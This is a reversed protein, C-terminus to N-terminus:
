ECPNGIAGPSYRKRRWECYTATKRAARWRRLGLAGLALAGFAALGASAPEPTDSSSYGYALIEVAPTAATNDSASAIPTSFTNALVQYEVWGYIQEGSSSTFAFLKYAPQNQAGDTTGVNPFHSQWLKGIGDSTFATRHTALWVFPGASGQFTSANQGSTVDPLGFVLSGAPFGHSTQAVLGIGYGRYLLGENSVYAMGVVGFGIGSGFSAIPTFVTALGTGIV